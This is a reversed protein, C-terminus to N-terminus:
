IREEEFELAFPFVDFFGQAELLNPVCLISLVVEVVHLNLLLIHVQNHSWEQARQVWKGSVFSNVVVPKVVEHEWTEQQAPGHHQKSEQIMQLKIWVGPM